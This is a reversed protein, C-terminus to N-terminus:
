PKYKEITKRISEDSWMLFMNRVKELSYGKGDELLGSDQIHLLKGRSDLIAFVPFGFRQPYGLSALVQRNENEKSFNVKVVVYNAEVLSDLQPDEHIFRHFRICWPCWNGGIQLFVNKGQSGALITAAAIDSAADAKPNYIETKEQSSAFLALLLLLTLLFTPKMHYYILKLHDCPILWIIM